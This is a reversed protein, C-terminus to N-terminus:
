EETEKEYIGEPAELALEKEILGRYDFRHANLWDILGVPNNNFMDYYSYFEYNEEGTMSSMPRLYPKVWELYQTVDSNEIEVKTLDIRNSDKISILKRYFHTGDYNEIAVIVGHPLRACLDKLLLEKDEQTM